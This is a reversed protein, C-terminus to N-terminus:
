PVTVVVKGLHRGEAFYRLAAPAESLPYRRDIVPRLEGGACLEAVARADERDQPVLLLKLTKGTAMRIGPGLLLIQFLASVAGGVFFYTGGRRVARACAFPSRHAVLDLM